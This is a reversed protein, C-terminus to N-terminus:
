FIKKDNVMKKMAEDFQRLEKETMGKTLDVYGQYVAKIAEALQEKTLNEYYPYDQKLEEGTNKKDSM